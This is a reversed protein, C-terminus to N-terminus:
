RDVGHKGRRWRATIRAAVVTEGNWDTESFIPPVYTIASLGLGKGRWRGKRREKEKHTSLPPPV